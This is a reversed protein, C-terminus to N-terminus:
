GFEVESTSFTGSKVAKAKKKGVAQGCTSAGSFSEAVTAAKASAATAFPGGELTGTLGTLAVESLPLILSGKSTGEAGPSWKVSLSVAATTPEASTSALVSCAVEETTRLHDVYKGSEFALPGSCAKLEGKVIINQVHPTATLGPSLKITGQDQECTQVKKTERQAEGDSNPSTVEVPASPQSTGEADTSTVSVRYTTNTQVPSLAATPWTGSATATLVPASSSVPAATVTFSKILPATEADATWTVGMRLYEAGGSEYLGINVSVGTPPAPPQLPPTGTELYAASGVNYLHDGHADTASFSPSGEAAGPLKAFSRTEGFWTWVISAWGTYKTSGGGGGRGSGGCRTELYVNGTPYGNSGFGTAWVQEQIGGCSHGLISFAAGQSLYLRIPNTASAAPAFAACTSVSAVISLMVKRAM